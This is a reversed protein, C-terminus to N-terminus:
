SILESNEFYCATGIPLPVCKSVAELDPFSVALYGQRNRKMQFTVANGKKAKDNKVALIRSCFFKFLSETKIQDTVYGFESNDFNVFSNGGETKTQFKRCFFWM